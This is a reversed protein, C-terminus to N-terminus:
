AEIDRDIDHQVVEAMYARGIAFFFGVGVFIGNDLDDKSARIRVRDPRDGKVGGFAPCAIDSFAMWQNSIVLRLNRM